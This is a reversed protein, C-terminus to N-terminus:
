CHRPGGAAPRPCNLASRHRIAYAWHEAFHTIFDLNHKFGIGIAATVLGLSQLRRLACVFSLLALMFVLGLQKPVINGSRERSFKLRGVSPLANPAPDGAAAAAAAILALVAGTFLAGCSRKGRRGAFEAVAVWTAHLESWILRYSRNLTAHKFM